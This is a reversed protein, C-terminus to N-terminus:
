SGQAKLDLKILQKSRTIFSEVLISFQNYKTKYICLTDSILEFKFFVSLINDMLLRKSCPALRKFLHWVTKLTWGSKFTNSKLKDVALSYFWVNTIIKIINSAVVWQQCM